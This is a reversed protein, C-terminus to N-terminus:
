LTMFFPFNPVRCSSDPNPENSANRYLEWDLSIRSLVPPLIKKKKKRFKILYHYGSSTLAEDM